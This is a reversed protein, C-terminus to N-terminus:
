RDDAGDETKVWRSGGGADLRLDGAELRAVLAKLVPILQAAAANSYLTHDEPLDAPHFVIVAGKLVGLADIAEIAEDAVDAVDYEQM